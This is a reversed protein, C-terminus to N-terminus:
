DDIEREVVFLREVSSKTENVKGKSAATIAKKLDTVTDIALTMQRNAIDLIKTKRRKAFWKEM